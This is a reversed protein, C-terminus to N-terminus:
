MLTCRTKKKTKKTKGEKVPEDESKQRRIRRVLEYFTEEVNTRFKSSTEFFGMNYKKALLSGDEHKVNRQEKLDSKNGVLVMPIVGTDKEQVRCVQENLKPIMEFSQTDTISYILLFGEGERIASDRLATYEEQGATDLIELLVAKSDVVCQRRYCDEITPDYDEVFHNSTFSITVCTKGVGGDGLVVVVNMCNMTM